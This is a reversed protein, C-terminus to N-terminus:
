WVAQIRRLTEEQYKPIMERHEPNDTEYLYNLLAIRRHLMLAKFEEASYEPVPRISAYGALMAENQEDTDLYYLATALDQLPVGFGSDDFDFVSVEGDHWMVNWGHLDAHIPRAVDRLFLSAVVEDIRSIADSIIDKTETELPSNSGTLMNEAGWFFERLDPLEAEDSLRVSMAQEHLKAMAAGLAFVQEATPEDGLESGDLWEFLVAKLTRGSGEHWVETVLDGSRNAVPVCVKVVGASALQSLWEVEANLNKISRPSNVNVRLAFKAGGSTEVSFTSNYEHNISEVSTVEGLEYNELVSTAAPILSQIQQEVTLSAFSESM